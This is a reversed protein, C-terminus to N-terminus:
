KLRIPVGLIRSTQGGVLGKSLPGIRRAIVTLRITKGSTKSQPFMEAFRFREVPPTNGLKFKRTYRAGSSEDVFEFRGLVPSDGALIVIIAADEHRVPLASTCVTFKFPQKADASVCEEKENETKRGQPMPPMRRVGMSMDAAQDGPDRGVMMTFAIVGLAVFILGLSLSVRTQFWKGGRSSQGVLRLEGM